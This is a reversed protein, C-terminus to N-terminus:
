FSAALAASSSRSIVILALFFRSFSKGCSSDVMSFFLCCCVSLYDSDKVACSGSKSRRLRSWLFKATELGSARSPLAEYGTRTWRSVVESCAEEGRDTVRVCNRKVGNATTLKRSTKYRLADHMLAEWLRESGM